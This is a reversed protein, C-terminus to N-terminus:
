RPWKRWGGWWWLQMATLQKLGVESAAGAHLASCPQSGSIERLPSTPHHGPIARCFHVIQHSFMFMNTTRKTGLIQACTLIFHIQQHNSHLSIQHNDKTKIPTAQLNSKHQCRHASTWHQSTPMQRSHARCCCSPDVMQAASKMPLNISLYSGEIGSSNSSGVMCPTQTQCLCHFSDSKSTTWLLSGCPALSICRKKPEPFISKTTRSVRAFVVFFAAVTEVTGPIYHVSERLPNIQDSPRSFKPISVSYICLTSRETQISPNWFLLGHWILSCDQQDVSDVWGWWSWQRLLKTPDLCPAPHQLIMGLILLISSGSTKSFGLDYLGPNKMTHNWFNLEIERVKCPTWRRSRHNWAVRSYRILWAPNMEPVRSLLQDPGTGAAVFFLPRTWTVSTAM